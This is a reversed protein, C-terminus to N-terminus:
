PLLTETCLWGSTSPHCVNSMQGALPVSFEMETQCSLSHFKDRESWTTRGTIPVFPLVLLPFLLALARKSALFPLPWVDIPVFCLQPSVCSSRSCFYQYAERAPKTEHVSSTKHGERLISISGHIKVPFSFSICSPELNCGRLLRLRAAGMTLGLEVKLRTTYMLWM